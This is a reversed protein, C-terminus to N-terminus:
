ETHLVEAVSARAAWRAPLLSGLLAVALGAAGLAALGLPNFVNFALEPIDNGIFAGMETLLARHLAVGAPLGLLGGVVGLVGATSAVMVLVQRPTMGLTKLIATDQRRERTNLLMTNFVGALAIVVLVLSVLAIVSNFTQIPSFTSDQTVSVALFDPQVSEIRSAFSRADAGPRLKVLYAQPSSDPAAAALTSYDMVLEHGLNTISFVEGVIRLSIPTGNVTVTVTDGLRVHAEDLTARPALAEDPASFWRGSVLPARLAASDGRYASVNVPDSLGPVVAEASAVAVVRQTEPQSDLTSMLQSDTYPGAREVIVDVTGTMSAGTAFSSTSERLGTAFVLTAVGVLIALGTLVGRLPRRLADGAGLSIPRPLGLRQMWRGLRSGRRSDPAIGTSIARVASLRGARLAPPIASILVVLVVGVLALLDTLPSFTPQSTLGLGHAAREVLPVSLLTGAPIGVLCGALAPALMQGVMVTVIQGPTFGVAKMIGIERYSALVIGTILNAVTAASAILAFVGFALLFSLLIQNTVNFVQRFLLYNVSDSVAGAPLSDRLRAVADRLQQQSPPQTFRYVMRYGYDGSFSRAQVETVWVSQSSTEADGEDIDVAEGVVVFEPKDLSSISTLHDGVSIGHLEAFSRTVVVEGPGRVWRGASVQLVEVAGAPDNRGVVNLSWKETGRKFQGDARPWPGASATAGILGPTTLLQEQTVHKRDYTVALHAGSQADFAKDWPNSSTQLLTLGLTITGSALLIIVAVVASQLRRRRIGARVHTVVGNM